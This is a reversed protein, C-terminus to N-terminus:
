HNNLLCLYLLLLYLILFNPTGEIGNNFLKNLQVKESDYNM